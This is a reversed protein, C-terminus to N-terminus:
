SSAPSSAPSAPVERPGAVNPLRVTTTYVRRKFQDSFPGLLTARSLDYKKGGDNFGPSPETTRSLLHLRVAVVNEWTNDAAGATGSLETLFKDANGTGLTDFGYQIEIDEIGEVLPVIEMVLGSSGARLEAMKLTPIQNATELACENCSAVYYIRSVYRRVTNVADCKFNQLTFDSATVSVKFPPTGAPESACRSTQVSPVGAASAPALAEVSLRHLVLAPTGSKHEALCALAAAEVSSLGMIPVPASLATSDWGLGSGVPGSGLTSACADPVNSRTIAPPLEAYFGAHSIDDELLAVAYRGNEIQGVSKGLEERSRSTNAFMLALGAVLVLGIAMGVMLEVITFGRNTKRRLQTFRIM